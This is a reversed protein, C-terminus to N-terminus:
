IHTVQVDFIEVEGYADCSEGAVKKDGQCSSQTYAGTKFYAGTVNTNLTFPVLTGNYYYKVANNQVEFKVNFRTGLQYNDTLTPGASGNIDIFLKKGELRFVTLDDSSGHIQAVVIHPKVVPLHNVRLDVYMTHKGTGASWAADTTGNNARERLESRPYGSGGTTAGGTNARFIISNGAPSVFFYNTDVFTALAPQKVEDASGNTDKDYPMTIKWNTLNLIQAPYKASSGTPPPTVSAGNTPFITTTPVSGTFLVYSGKSAETDDTRVTAAGASTMEEAEFYTIDNSTAAFNEIINRSHLRIFSVILLLVLSIGIAIKAKSIQQHKTHMFSTYIDNNM